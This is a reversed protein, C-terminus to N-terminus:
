KKPSHSGPVQAVHKLLEIRDAPCSKRVKEMPPEQEPSWSKSLAQAPTSHWKSCYIHTVNEKLPQIFGETYCQAFRFRGRPRTTTRWLSIKFFTWEFRAFSAKEDSNEELNRAPCQQHGASSTGLVSNQSICIVVRGLPISSYVDHLV